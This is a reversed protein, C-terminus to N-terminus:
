RAAGTRRLDPVRAHSQRGPLARRVNAIDAATVFRNVAVLDFSHVTRDPFAQALKATGCGFDGIARDPPQQRLAAIVTDVPNTPWKDVQDAFGRHYQEGGMLILAVRRAHAVGASM